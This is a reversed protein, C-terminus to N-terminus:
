CCCDGYWKSWVEECVLCWCGGVKAWPGSDKNWGRGVVCSFSSSVWGSRWEKANPAYVVVVGAFQSQEV